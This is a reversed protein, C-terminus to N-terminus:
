AVQKQILFQLCDLMRKGAALKKVEGALYRIYTSRSDGTEAVAEAIITDTVNARISRFEEKLKNLQTELIPTNCTLEMFTVKPKRKFKLVFM